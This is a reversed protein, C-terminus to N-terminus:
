APKPFPTATDPVDLRPDLTRTEAATRPTADKSGPQALPPASPAGTAISIKEPVVGKIARKAKKSKTGRAKRTARLREAAIVQTVPDTQRVKDPAFGFDALVTSTSGHDNVLYTRLARGLTAVQKTKARAAAVAVRLQARLTAVQAFADIHDQFVDSLETPNYATGLLKVSTVGQMNKEIGAIVQAARAQLTAQNINAM